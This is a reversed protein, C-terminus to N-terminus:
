QDTDTLKAFRALFWMPEGGVDASVAVIQGDATAGGMHMRVRITATGPGREVGRVVVRDIRGELYDAFVDQSKAQELFITSLVAVDVDEVAPLPTAPNEGEAGLAAEDDEGVKAQRTASIQEFYWNKGRKSMYLEGQASTGDTLVVTLGVKGTYPGSDSKQIRLEGIEGNVLKVINAQSDIQEQWVRLAYSQSVGEPLLLRPEAAVDTSPPAPRVIPEPDPATGFLGFWDFASLDIGTYDKLIAAGDFLFFAAGLAMAAVVFLLVALVVPSRRNQTEAM